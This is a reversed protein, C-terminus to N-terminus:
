SKSTDLGLKKAKELIDRIGHRPLRSCIALGDEEWGRMLRLEEEPYWVPIIGLKSVRAKISSESRGPLRKMVEMREDDYFRRLIDDEEETWKRVKTLKLESARKLCEGRTKGPLRLYVDGGEIAYYKVLISDDQDTWRSYVKDFIREWQIKTAETSFMLAAMFNTKTEIYKADDNSVKTSKDTISGSQRLVRLNDYNSCIDLIKSKIKASASIARGMQQIFVNGSQTKRLFVLLSVGSIHIGENAMDVVKLVCRDTDENFEKLNLNRNAVSIRSHMEYIHIGDGFWEKLDDDGNLLIDIDPYFVIIKKHEPTIHARIQETLSYDSVLKGIKNLLIIDNTKKELEEALAVLDTPIYVYEFGPILNRQVAQEIDPGYVIRTGFLEVAMDRKGDLYRCPTASLGIIYEFCPMIRRIYMLWTKAGSRHLEDIILVDETPQYNKLGAYTIFKVDPYDWEKYSKIAQSIAHVPVVYLVKKGKFITNLLQMTVYTKGLGPAQIIACMNTEKLVEMVKDYTEQNHGYLEM